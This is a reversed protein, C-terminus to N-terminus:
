DELEFKIRYSYCSSVPSGNDTTSRYHGSGVKALKLAADDIRRSGSSQVLVPDGTLRGQPDVCVHVNATGTEALRRSMAPYYDDTNPFGKDPGGWVRLVPGPAGRSSPGPPAQPTAQPLDGNDVTFPIRPSDQPGLVWPKIVQPKFNKAVSTPVPRQPNTEELISGHMSTPLPIVIQQTFGAAFGYVLLVQLGVILIFAVTRRSLRPLDNSLGVLFPKHGTAIGSTALQATGFDRAIVGTAWYCGIALRLRAIPGTRYELDALWEETLREALAAPARQAARLILRHALDPLDNRSKM